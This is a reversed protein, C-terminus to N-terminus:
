RKAKKKAARRRRPISSPLPVDDPTWEGDTVLFQEGELVRRVARASKATAPDVHRGEGTFGDITVVNSGTEQKHEWLTL